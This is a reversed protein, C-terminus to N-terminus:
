VQYTMFSSLHVANHSCLRVMDTTMKLVIVKVQDSSVDKM